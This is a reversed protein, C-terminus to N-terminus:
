INETYTYTLDAKSTGCTTSVVYHPDGHLRGAILGCVAAPVQPLTVTFSTAGGTITINGGAWPTALGGSNALLPAITASTVQSYSGSGQALADASALLAQMQNLAQTAQQSANAAQYYRVSMIIIMAAIALVLMVELLTVGLMNREFRKM